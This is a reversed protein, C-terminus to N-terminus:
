PSVLRERFLAHFGPVDTDTAAAFRARGTPPGTEDSAILPLQTLSNGTSDVSVRQPTFHCTDPRILAAIVLPDHLLCPEGPEGFAGRALVDLWGDIRDALWAVRSGAPAASRLDEADARTLFVRSTQDIGIARLPIGAALVEAFADPDVAVNFDASVEIGPIIYGTANGAMTVIERVNHAFAPDTHIARAINTLPGIAAITIEGPREAVREVLWRAADGDSPVGDLVSERETPDQGFLAWVESMERKLPRDAGAIVPIDPRGLRRLLAESLRHASGGGVNGNVTTLGLVELEPSALALAVALGDDIVSGPDGLGLDTDIILPLPNM